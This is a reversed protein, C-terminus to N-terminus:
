WVPGELLTEVHARTPMADQAGPRTVACAGAANAWRVAEPLPKGEALAVALAGCFADGAGVTDVAKVLFPLVHGDGDHAAWVAGQAGLTVIVGRTTAGLLARAAELASSPDRVALGSLAAAETENPTLYDALRLLEDPVRRAPAPNLLVLRGLRKAERAAVLSAEPAVELQLLLADAESMLAAAREGDSADCRGNAGPVQVIRNQGTADVEILAVGSTTTEDRLVAKIDVGKAQLSALLEEGFADGGVRGVMWTRAGMRACAVAQNAGKGGPTTFFRTGIVTEGAQPFRPTVVVLDMNIGGLVVLRPGGRSAEASAM